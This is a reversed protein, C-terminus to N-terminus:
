NRKSETAHILNQTLVSSDFSYENYNQDYTNKKQYKMPSSVSISLQKWMAQLIYEVHWVHTEEM